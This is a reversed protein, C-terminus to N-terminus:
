GEIHGDVRGFVLAQCQDSDPHLLRPASIHFAFVFPFMIMDWECSSTQSKM